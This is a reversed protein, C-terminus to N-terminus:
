QSNQPPEDDGGTDVDVDTNRVTDGVEEAANGLAEGANEAANGLDATVNEMENEDYQLTVQDNQPDNDVGCAAVFLLPVALLIRMM